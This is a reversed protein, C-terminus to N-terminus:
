IKYAYIIKISATLQFNIKHDKFTFHSSKPSYLQIKTLMGLKSILECHAENIETFATTM